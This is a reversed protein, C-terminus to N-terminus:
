VEDSIRCFLELVVLRFLVASDSPLWRYGERCTLIGTAWRLGRAIRGIASQTANAQGPPKGPGLAVEIAFRPLVTRLGAAARLADVVRLGAAARLAAVVRLCAGALMSASFSFELSIRSSASARSCCAAVLSSRLTIPREVNSRWATKSVSASFATLSHSASRDNM